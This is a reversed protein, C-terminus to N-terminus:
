GYRFRAFAPVYLLLALFPIAVWMLKFVLTISSWRHFVGRRGERAHVGFPRPFRGPHERDLAGFFGRLQNLQASGDAIAARIGTTIAYGLVACGLIIVLNGAGLRPLSIQTAVATLLALNVLICANLRAQYLNDEREIQRAVQEYTKDPDIATV